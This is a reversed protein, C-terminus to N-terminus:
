VQQSPSMHSFSMVAAEVCLGSPLQDSLLSLPAAAPSVFCYYYHLQPARNSCVACVCQKSLACHKM